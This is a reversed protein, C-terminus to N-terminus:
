VTRRHSRSLPRSSATDVACAPGPVSRRGRPPVRRRGFFEEFLEEGEGSSARRKIQVSVVAPSLNEALYAISEPRGSARGEPGETWFRAKDERAQAANDRLSVDIELTQTAFLAIFGALGAFLATKRM